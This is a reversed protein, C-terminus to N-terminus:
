PRRRAAAGRSSRCRPRHLGRTHRQMSWAYGRFAASSERRIPRPPSYAPPASSSGGSSFIASLRTLSRPRARTCLSALSLPLRRLKLQPAKVLVLSLCIMLYGCSLHWLQQIKGLFGPHCSMTIEFFESQNNPTGRRRLVECELIPMALPMPLPLQHLRAGPCALRCGEPTPALDM